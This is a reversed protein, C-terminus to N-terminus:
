GCSAWTLPKRLARRVFTAGFDPGVANPKFTGDSRDAPKSGAEDSLNSPDKLDILGALPSSRGTM